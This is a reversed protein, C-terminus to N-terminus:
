ESAARMERSAEYELCQQNQQILNGKLTRMVKKVVYPGRNRPATAQAEQMNVVM